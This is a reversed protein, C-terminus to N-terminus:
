VYVVNTNYQYVTDSNVGAIYMKVGDSSFVLAQPAIDQAAIDFEKYSYAATSVDWPTTLRYQHVADSGAGTVFMKRGDSDFCVDQPVGEQTAVSFSKSSYSATSVDWATSLTYQYISGGVDIVFMSTGDSKFALGHPITGQTAVSFSKSSYSATSVDWATSLSYQYVTNNADGIVFMTTGDNSFAIGHPSTDQTAVSFSNGSYSATTLDWAGALDYQYVTNNIDGVAFMRTGDPKFDLGVCSVAQGSVDVSVGSYGGADLMWGRVKERSRFFWASVGDAQITVSEYQQQLQYNVGGNITDTGARNITVTNATADIRIFTFPAAALANAAPLNIVVNGATADVLILGCDAITLTKPSDAYAVPTVHSGAARQIAEWLQTGDTKSLAQGTAEIPTILEKQVANLFDAKVTTAPVSAGPDGETFFGPTGPAEPTPEVAAADTTDIKYM